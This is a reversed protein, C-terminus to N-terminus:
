FSNWLLAPTESVLESERLIVFNTLFTIRRGERQCNFRGLKTMEATLVM